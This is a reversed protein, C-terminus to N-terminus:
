PKPALRERLREVPSGTPPGPFIEDVEVEFPDTETMRITWVEM